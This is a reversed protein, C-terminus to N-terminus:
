EQKTVSLTYTGTGSRSVSSVLVLYDGTEAATFTLRANNGTGSTEDYTVDLLDYSYVGLRPNSLTGRGTDAGELDIVYTKGEELRVRFVDVDRGSDIEGTVYGGVAVRGTTNTDPPFDEGEKESVSDGPDPVSLTYTGTDDPTQSRASLYYTGTTEPTFVVRANGGLGGDEDEDALPSLDGGNSAVQHVALEPNPLTGRGSAAGELSIAYTRGGVLDIAFWDNDGAREINSVVSEGVPVRGRTNRNASFDKEAVRVTYTGPPKEATGRAQQGVAIYHNASASATFELRGNENATDAILNSDQDYIGAISPHGLTGGGRWAGLVDVNYIKGEVLQVKFWDIDGPTEIVGAGTAANAPFHIASDAPPEETIAPIHIASDADAGIDDPLAEAVTIAYSGNQSGGSASVHYSGGRGSPVTFFLRANYGVGGDRDGRTVPKAGEANPDTTIIKRGAKYLRRGEEDYAVADGEADYTGNIWPDSLTGDGTPSGLLDFQYTKGGELEVRFWDFDWYREGNEIEGFARGGVTLLGPASEDGSQHDAGPRRLNVTYASTSGDQATVTITVTVTVAVERANEPFDVQHGAASPDADSPTIATVEALLQRAEAAVTVQTATENVRHSYATVAPDFGAVREGDVTIGRLDANDSVPMNYAYLKGDAQDAVWMIAGDSWLGNPRRNGAADLTNFDRGPVRAKTAMDYAYLKDAGENAVWMTEGDSWLGRPTLNGAAELTDFDLGPVRAKTALDYAYLKFDTLDAVWITEGDSWLGTPANNGAAILTDFDRGAVPLKSEVDYAYLKDDSGDAVWMTAGDSWIGRPSTNGADALTDFDQGFVREKSEVDYAYLKADGFDAVWITEGDSWIGGPVINGAAQLTNFDDEVKWGYPPGTGRLVTVTYIGTSGDQATVTVTVAVERANEPFDVQHGGTNPDADSPTISTVEALLQRAEAAVTFRTATEDVRHSYATEAPDFGALARGDVTITRLDANDSVPMNYSYLKDDILDGVWMTAGDSWIGAAYGNGVDSLTNFDKGLVHAKTERDYAYLKDAIYDSVWMTVGDSWIGDPVNNGVADLTDFDKGLVHAKSEMDYAYLKDAAENAVWMTEGDSWIGKPNRNGAAALTGFDEGPVRDGTALDYAYLKADSGDAVWMTEGDSWIGKPSRNGAAALTDFDQGPARGGTDLDYAYLKANFIDAVWMTAGNSWLGSQDQNGAAILTNIDDEAKWGYADTVGRGVHVTYTKLPLNVDSGYLSITVTNLGSSLNVRLGDTHDIDSTGTYSVSAATTEFTITVQTVTAAVGVHYVTRDPDFGDIDVPSVALSSLTGATAAAPRGTKTASWAGDGVSNVARVQVDYEMNNALGTIEDSLAGGGTTWADEVVTWNADAKDTANTLIHRLDYAAITAGGNNSPGGWAVTLTTDGPTVTSIAPAGPATPAATPTGTRTASWAGDGVSNVARVQVDYEMDNALGTIEDSLAGGGTTWADEIVTWNADAKDTANTLIHRLDYATITAGGNNSPESWAVTLTTDGPTVTSIAPAGPATPAAIPTGTRTASWAGDGVSNVARVQADYEMDNALGTIEDSLAGGGIIWADEVVTWNADAKDTANTLIHRLDYAKIAGGGNDDPESWAM